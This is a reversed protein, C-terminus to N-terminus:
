AIGSGSHALSEGNEMKARTCNRGPYPPSIWHRPIGKTDAIPITSYIGVFHDTLSIFDYGEAKYRRCVEAPDLAGDSLNSHTHLNGRLFRGPATFANVTM